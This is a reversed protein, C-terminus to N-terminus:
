YQSFAFWLDDWYKDQRQSLAPLYILLNGLACVDLLGERMEIDPVHGNHEELKKGAMIVKKWYAMLRLLLVRMDKHEVNTIAWSLFATHVWGMVVSCIASTPFFYQGFVLSNSETAM